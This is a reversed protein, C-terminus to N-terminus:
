SYQQYYTPYLFKKIKKKEFFKAFKKGIPILPSQYKQISYLIVLIDNNIIPYISFNLPYFKIYNQIKKKVFLKYTQHIEYKEFSEVQYNIQLPPSFRDFM